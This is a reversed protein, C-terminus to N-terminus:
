RLLKVGEQVKSRKEREIEGRGQKREGEISDEGKNNM